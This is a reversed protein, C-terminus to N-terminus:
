RIIRYKFSCSVCGFPSANGSPASSLIGSVNQRWYIFSPWLDSLVPSVLIHLPLVYGKAGPGRRWINWRERGLVHRVKGAAVRVSLNCGEGRRGLGVNNELHTSSSCYIEAPFARMNIARTRRIQEPRPNWNVAPIWYFRNHCRIVRSIM